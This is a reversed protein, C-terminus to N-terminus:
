IRWRTWLLSCYKDGTLQQYYVTFLSGDPLEVTSPYGLDLTPGDDRLIYEAEWTEGDDRSIRARQGFPETRRGFSLVIAGSSHRMLHPPAGNTELSEPFSWTRGGDESVTRLMTLVVEASRIRFTALLRGDELELVHPECPIRWSPDVPIAGLREWTKGNDRSEYACLDDNVSGDSGTYYLVRGLYLLSGDRRRIPGHPTSVPVRITDGWTMGGDGSLRLFSGGRSHEAPITPYAQDILSGSVTWATTITKKYKNQYAETPHSFWTLLLRDDGLPVIGADRDDLYTDNVVMPVSWTKGCDFSKFLVTKGFPCIHAARFGSAAVYLVGKEDICVTPWGCYGFFSNPNRYVIGNETEPRIERITEM